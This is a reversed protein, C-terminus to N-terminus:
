ATNDPDGKAGSDGSELEQAQKLHAEVIPITKEVLAKIDADKAAKRAAQLKTLIDKHAGIGAQKLYARDFDEGTQAELSALMAKHKTGTSAPLKVRKAQALARLEDLAAGHDEVMKAAYEKVSASQSKSQALKGLAVEAMSAMAMDSLAKRDADTLKVAAPKTAASAQAQAVLPATMVAAIAMALMKRLIHNWNM